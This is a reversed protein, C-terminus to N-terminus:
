VRRNGRKEEGRGKEGPSKGNQEKGKGKQGAAKGSDEFSTNSVAEATTPLFVLESMITLYNENREQVCETHAALHANVFCISTRAVVLRIAACSKNGLRLAGLGLGLTATRVEHVHPVLQERVFLLTCVGVLHCRAMLRYRGQLAAHLKWAWVEALDHDTFLINRINLEVVEQLAIAIVDALPTAPQTYLTTNIEEDSVEHPARGALNWTLCFVTVATPSQTMLHPSHYVQQGRAQHSSSSKQLSAKGPVPDFLPWLLKAGTDAFYGEM